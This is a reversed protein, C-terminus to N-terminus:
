VQGRSPEPLIKSSAVCDVNFSPCDVHIDRWNSPSAVGKPLAGVTEPRIIQCFLALMAKSHVGRGSQHARCSPMVLRNALSGWLRAGDDHSSAQAQTINIYIRGAWWLFQFAYHNTASGVKCIVGGQKAKKGEYQRQKSNHTHMEFNNMIFVSVCVCLSVFHFLFIPSLSCIYQINYICSVDPM